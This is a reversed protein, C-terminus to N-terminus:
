ARLLYDTDLVLTWNHIGNNVGTNLDKRDQPRRETPGTLNDVCGALLLILGILILINKM